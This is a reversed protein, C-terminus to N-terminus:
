AWYDREINFQTHVHQLIDVNQVRSNNCHDKDQYTNAWPCRECLIHPAPNIFSVPTRRNTRGMLRCGCAAAAPKSSHAWRGSIDISQQMTPAWCCIRSTDRQLQVCVQKLVAKPLRLSKTCSASLGNLLCGNRYPLKLMPQRMEPRLKRIIGHSWPQWGEDSKAPPVGPVWSLQPDNFPLTKGYEYRANPGSSIGTYLCDARLHRSTFWAM